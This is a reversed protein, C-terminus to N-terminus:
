EHSGDAHKGQQIFEVCCVATGINNSTWRRYSTWEFVGAPSGCTCFLTSGRRGEMNPERFVFHMSTPLCPYWQHHSPLYIESSRSVWEGTITQAHNPDAHNRIVHAM